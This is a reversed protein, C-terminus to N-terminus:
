VQTPNQYFRYHLAPAGHQQEGEGGGSSRQRSAVKRDESFEDRTDPDHTDKIYAVDARTFATYRSRMLALATDPQQSGDLLPGCCADFDLDSLCPCQAMVGIM